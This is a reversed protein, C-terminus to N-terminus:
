SGRPKARNTPAAALPDDPWPHKPYRGRLEKRAEYYGATWFSALDRTVQIPRGAPSLLHLLVSVRGDALSPTERCGFLEQLKVALVPVDQSEYDVRVRSGSPVILHTPALRDLHHHQERTLLAHLPGEIEVGTLSFIGNLFPALWQELTGMLTADSLDPWLTQPGDLRRLFQVRARWTRLEKTWPLCSPGEKRIGELMTAVVLPSDPDSVSKEHLVLAGLREVRTSRVSRTSADWWVQEERRILDAAHTYLAEETIPVALHIPAWQGDGGLDAIVLYPATSLSDPQQFAAGRGSALRYRPENGPLRRAIRDPYALALLLGADTLDDHFPPLRLQARWQQAILAVRRCASRDVILDDSGPEHGHLLDLRLRLDAPRAGSKARVVDRETLLAAVDCALGGLKLPMAKLVMHALRPHMALDVMERGHPTIHGHADLAGLGTLLERTSSLAGNPPPDLWSLEMPDHIGWQALELVLSSLDTELIEPMRCAALTQHDAASWLRICLGAEIRGARGRRQDASDQSVRVTTLRTLGTRPDFRPMRTLGADIVIRIGEITLSSEAINTALVVKRRGPPPPAIALDQAEQTLDGYLPAIVVNSSLSGIQQLRRQVHRIEPAGPLFVLVNGREKLLVQHVMEIVAQVTSAATRQAVYRTEVPFVRGECAIIPAEGLLEAVADVDLTASMVLLRLDPRFLRRSELCLALGLDAHLSREHFEDFLVAGYGSLSPDHQLLRTLIGETVVEIRTRPGVRTDLRIRYGVTEGIAEDLQRAMFSAAARAALRRPELMLIRQGALWAEDLLALPVRTTKGAGPPASLVAHRGDALVRRLDPLFTDIPLPPLM